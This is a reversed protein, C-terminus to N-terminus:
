DIRVVRLREDVYEPALYGIARPNGAVTDAMAAGDPVTRPPQGRGTFILRSWHAKIDAPSRDLYESYFTRHAVSGERQDVLVVSDGHEFQTRRGLYLDVLESRSISEVPNQASVVVVIDAMATGPIFGALVVSGLFVLERARRTM